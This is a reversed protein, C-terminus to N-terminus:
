RVLVDLSTSDSISFGHTSFDIPNGPLVHLGGGNGCAWYISPYGPSSATSCFFVVNGAGTGMWHSSDMTTDDTLIQLAALRSIPYGDVSEVFLGGNDTIRVATSVAALAQVLSPDLFTGDGPAVSAAPTSSTTQGAVHSQILTWGGGSTTMDCYVHFPAIPGAGDPDVTYTGSGLAPNGALIMACSTPSCVNGNCHSAPVCDADTTCTALCTTGGAACRYAGCSTTTGACTGGGDCTQATTQSSTAAGDICAATGCPTSAAPFVCAGTADCGTAGCTGGAPSCAAACCNGAGNTSCVNSTCQANGTCAVGNDKTVCKGGSCLGTTCDSDHSCKKNVGCAPCANLGNFGAGGCDVDTENGNQVNDSCTPLTCIGSKCFDHQCDSDVDCMKSDACGPCANGGCDIDTETGDKTNDTCTPASCMQSLCIMPSTCDATSNCGVCNGNADCVAGGNFSCMTGQSVPAQGPTGTMSCTATHCADMPAPTNTTDVVMAANGNGDCENSMCSGPNQGDPTKTGQTVNMTGCCGGNCTNTVCANPPNPCDTPATCATTTCMGGVGSSASSSTTGGTGGVGATSATATATGTTGGGTAEAGGMGLTPTVNFDSLLTECAVAALPLLALGVCRRWVGVNM